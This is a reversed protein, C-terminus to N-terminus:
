LLVVGCCCSVVCCLLVVLVVCCCCWMVAACCCMVAFLGCGCLLVVVRWCLLVVQSCVSWRVFLCVCVLACVCRVFFSFLFLALECWAFCM